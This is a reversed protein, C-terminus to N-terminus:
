WHLQFLIIEWKELPIFMSEINNELIYDMGLRSNRVGTLNLWCEICIYIYIYLNKMSEDISLSEKKRGDPAQRTIWWMGISPEIPEFKEGRRSFTPQESGAIIFRVKAMTQSEKMRFIRNWKRFERGEGGSPIISKFLIRSFLFRIELRNYIILESSIITFVTTFLLM